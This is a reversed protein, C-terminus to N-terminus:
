KGWVLKSIDEDSLDDKKDSDEEKPKEEPNEEKKRKFPNRFKFYEDKSKEKEPKEKKPEDDKESIETPTGYVDNIKDLSLNSVDIYKEKEEKEKKRLDEILIGSPVKSETIIDHHDLEKNKFLNIGLQGEIKKVLTKYDRPVVGKEISEIAILPEMIKEAFQEQTMKTSRRKRMIVWHFNDILDDPAKVSTSVEKKFNKEVIDKLRVDEYNPKIKKVETKQTSVHAMKALRERVSERSNMKESDLEKKELLPIKDKFYCKRCVFVIGENKHIGEYLVAKDETAGCIYCEKM